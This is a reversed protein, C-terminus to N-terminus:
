ADKEDEGELEIEKDDLDFKAKQLARFMYLVTQVTAYICATFTATNPEGKFHLFIVSGAALINAVYMWLLTVSPGKVRGDYAM